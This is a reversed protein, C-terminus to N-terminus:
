QSTLEKWCERCRPEGEYVLLRGEDDTDATDGCKSACM